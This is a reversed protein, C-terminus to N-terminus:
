IIGTAYNIISVIFLIVAFIVLLAGILTPRDLFLTDLSVDEPDNAKYFVLTTRGLKMDEDIYYCEGKSIYEHENVQYSVVSLTKDTRPETTFDIINRRIILSMM